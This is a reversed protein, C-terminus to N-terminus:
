SYDSDEEIILTEKASFTSSISAARNQKEQQNKSKVTSTPAKTSAAPTSQSVKGEREPLVIKQMIYEITGQKVWGRSVLIEGFRMGTAQQDILAVQAQTPTILEAEILYTGLYKNENSTHQSLVNSPKKNSAESILESKLLANEIRDLLSSIRDWKKTIIADELLNAQVQILLEGSSAANKKIETVYRQLKEPNHQTLSEKLKGLLLKITGLSNNAQHESNVADQKM